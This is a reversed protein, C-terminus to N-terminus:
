GQPAEAPAANRRSRREALMQEFQQRQADNLVAEIQSKSAQMIERAKQRRDQPSLTADGRVSQMQQIRDALIPKIQAVQSRSLGLTRALHRAQRNANPAQRQYPPMNQGPASQDPAAQAPAAQQSPAAAQNPDSQQAVSMGASLLAGLILTAKLPSHM